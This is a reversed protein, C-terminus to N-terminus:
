LNTLLCIGLALFNELDSTKFFCFLTPFLFLNTKLIVYLGTSEFFTSDLIFKSNAGSLFCPFTKSIGVPTNLLALFKFSIRTLAFTGGSFFFAEQLDHSPVQHSIHLCTTIVSVNLDKVIWLYFQMLGLLKFKREM